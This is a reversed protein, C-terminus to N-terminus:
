SRFEKEPTRRDPFRQPKARRTTARPPTDDTEASEGTQLAALDNRTEVLGGFHSSRIEPAQATHARSKPTAFSM